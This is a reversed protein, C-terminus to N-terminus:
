APSRTRTSRPSASTTSSFCRTAEPPSSTTSLCPSSIKGPRRWCTTSWCFSWNRVSATAAPSSSRSITIPFIMARRSFGSRVSCSATKSPANSMDRSTGSSHRPEGRTWGQRSIRLSAQWQQARTRPPHRPPTVFFFARRAPHTSKGHSGKHRGAISRYFPHKTSGHNGAQNM